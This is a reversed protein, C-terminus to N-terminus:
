EVERAAPQTHRVYVCFSIAGSLFLLAGYATWTLWFAGLIRPALVTGVSSNGALIELLHVPLFAIGGASIIMAVFVAWKWRHFRIIRIYLGAVLLIYLSAPLAFAVHNRLAIFLGAYTVVVVCAGLLMTGWQKRPRYQVYGTRKYTIRNKIANNCYNNILSLVVLFIVLTSTRHWVATEPSHLILWYLPSFGLLLFGLSLEGMGDINYYLKPRNLFKGVNDM